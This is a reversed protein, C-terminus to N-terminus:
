GSILFDTIMKATYNSQFIDLIEKISGNGPDYIDIVGNQMGFWIKGDKDINMTTLNQSHLGESKTLFTQYDSLENLYYGAGGTSSMWFGEPSIKVDTTNKMDAYNKWVGFEQGIILSSLTLLFFLVKVQNM